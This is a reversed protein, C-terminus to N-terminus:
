EPPTRRTLGIGIILAALAVLGVSGPEPVGIQPKLSAGPSPALQGFKTMWVDFDGADITGSRDGDAALGAGMQGFTKRWVIYDTADVLGNRNYDGLVGEVELSVVGTNYAVDFFLGGPLAPLLENTFSGFRGGTYTLFPFSQGALPVFNNIIDVDLTGGLQLNHAHIADFETGSTTGGVEIELRGGGAIEYQRNATVSGPGANGPAHTGSFQVDQLDGTGSLRGGIRIIDISGAITGGWVLGQNVLEGQGQIIGPGKITHGAANTLKTGAAVALTANTHNLDIYGTGDLMMQPDCCFTIGYNGGVMQPNVTITGDNTLGSGEIL